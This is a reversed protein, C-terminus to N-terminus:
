RERRLIENSILSLASDSPDNESRSLRDLERVDIESLLSLLKPLAKARSDIKTKRGTHEEFFRQVDRITPLFQRNEFRSILQRLVDAKDPNKSLVKDVASEPTPRKKSRKLAFTKGIEELKTHLDEYPTGLRNALATLVAQDGFEAVLLAIEYELFKTSTV